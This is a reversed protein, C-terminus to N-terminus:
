KESVQLLSSIFLKADESIHGFAENPFSYRADQVRVITENLTGVFFPSLGSLRCFCCIYQIVKM